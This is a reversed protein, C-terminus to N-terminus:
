NLLKNFAVIVHSAIILSGTYESSSTLGAEGKMRLIDSTTFFPMQM